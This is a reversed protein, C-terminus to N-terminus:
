RTIKSYNHKTEFVTVSYVFRDDINKLRKNIDIALHEATPNDNMYYVNDKGCINELVEGIKRNNLSDKLITKHDYLDKLQKIKTFDFLIGIKDLQREFGHVLVEVNWNHGHLQHCRTDKNNYDELRHASDFNFETRIIIEKRQKM